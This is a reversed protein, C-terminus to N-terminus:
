HINNILQTKTQAQRQRYQDPTMGTKLTFLLQFTKLSDFGVAAYLDEPKMYPHENLMRCARQIRKDDLYQAVTQDYTAYITNTLSNESLDLAEALKAATMDPRNYLQRASVEDDIRSMLVQSPMQLTVDSEENVGMSVLRKRRIFRRLALVVIVMALMFFLIVLYYMHM